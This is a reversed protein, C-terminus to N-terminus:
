LTYTRIREREREREGVNVCIFVVCCLLLGEIFELHQLVADGVYRCLHHVQSVLQLAGVVPPHPGDLGLVEHFVQSLKLM